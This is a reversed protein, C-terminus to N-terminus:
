VSIQKAAKTFQMGKVVIRKTVGRWLFSGDIIDVCQFDTKSNYCHPLKTKIEQTDRNFFDTPNPYKKSYTRDSTWVFFVWGHYGIYENFNLQSRDLKNVLSDLWNVKHSLLYKPYVVKVEIHELLKETGNKDWHYISLDRKKDENYIFENKESSVGTGAEFNLIKCLENCLWLECASFNFQYLYQESNKMIHKIADDFAISADAM